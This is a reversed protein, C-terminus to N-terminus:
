PSIISFSQFNIPDHGTWNSAIQEFPEREGVDGKSLDM